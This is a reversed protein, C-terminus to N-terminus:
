LGRIKLVEGNYAISLKEAGFVAHIHPKKHIGGLEKLFASQIRTM